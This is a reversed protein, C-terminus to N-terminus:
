PRLFYERYWLSNRWLQCRGNDGSNRQALNGLQEHDECHYSREMFRVIEGLQSSASMSLMAIDSARMLQRDMTDLEGPVPMVILPFLLPQRASRLGARVFVNWSEVSRGSRPSFLLPIGVPVSNRGGGGYGSCFQVQELVDHYTENTVYFAM